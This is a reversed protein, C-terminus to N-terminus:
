QIPRPALDRPATAQTATGTPAAGGSPAPLIVGAEVRCFSRIENDSRNFSGARGVRTGLYSLAAAQTYAGVGGNIRGYDIVVVFPVDNIRVGNVVASVSGCVLVLDQAEAGVFPRTFTASSPNLLAASVKDEVLANGLNDLSVYRVGPVPEVNQFRATPLGSSPGSPLATQCAALLVPLLVTLWALRRM